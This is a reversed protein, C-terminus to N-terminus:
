SVYSSISDVTVKMQKETNIDTIEASEGVKLGFLNKGIESLYSLENKEPTSDWAGLITYTLDEGSDAKLKVITGINVKSSDAEKFDTGRVLDLDRELEGRRRALVAQMQKAAKFEFNERLDGYSRAIAIEKTNQPIRNKVVDELEEKKREISPWSSIITEDKKKQEGSVVDQAEPRVKIVRAMLSKRDLEPFVPNAMLRRAFNRVENLDEDVVMDGILERDELFMSQLRSARRPGDDIQDRELANLISNGVEINFVDEASKKRERSLWILVDPAASRSSILRALHEKLKKGHGEDTVLKFIEGVGRAGAENLVDLIRDVWEDGFAIPFSKFIRSQRAASLSTLQATVEPGESTLVDALRLASDDLKLDKVSDVLDDRSALLEVVHQLQTRLGKRSLQDITDLLTELKAPAEKFLELEKHISELAKVKGKLTQADDFDKLLADDPAADPDRLVIPDTRRSPVAARRSERLAKKATDWWKKFTDTEVIGELERELQDVKMRGGASEVMQCVLEAPDDSALAKLRAMENVRSAAFHGDKLPEVKSLALKLGMKQDPKAEFDIVVEADPLSWSKVEGTGWNKHQVFKGPAINSLKEGVAASIRGAEVLKDVDPHM